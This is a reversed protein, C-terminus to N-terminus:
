GRLAHLSALGFPITVFYTLRPSALAALGAGAIASVVLAASEWMRVRGLAKEFGGGTGFEEVMTDYVISDLTGSQMAFFVGLLLAAVLYTAVNTSLGGVLESAILAVGAIMLVGRRSWRDALIGSPIELFPVVAAYCAAMLGVTAATFGIESLFLKEVPLWLTSGQLVTAVSLPRLRRRLRRMRIDDRPAEDLVPTAADEVIMSMTTSVVVRPSTM